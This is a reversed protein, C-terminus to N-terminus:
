PARGLSHLGVGVSNLAANLDRDITLGCAPCQHVRVSLSKQVVGGCTSCRQSTGRPDIQICVAGAEEAKYQTYTILLNWAADASSKALTPHKMM